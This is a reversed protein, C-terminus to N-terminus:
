RDRRRRPVLRDARRRGDDLRTQGVCRASTPCVGEGARVRIGRRAGTTKAAEALVRLKRAEHRLTGEDQGKEQLLESALRLDQTGVPDHRNNPLVRAYRLRRYSAASQAM